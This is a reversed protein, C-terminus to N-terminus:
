SCSDDQAVIRLALVVCCDACRNAAYIKVWVKGCGVCSLPSVVIGNM